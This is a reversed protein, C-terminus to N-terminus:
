ISIYIQLIHYHMVWEIPFISNKKKAQALMRSNFDTQTITAGLYDAFTSTISITMDKDVMEYLTMTRKEYSKRVLSSKLNGLFAMVIFVSSIIWLLRFKTSLKSKDSDDCQHYEQFLVGYTM